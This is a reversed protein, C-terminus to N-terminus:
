PAPRLTKGKGKRNYAGVVGNGYDDAYLQVVGEGTKNRGEIFFGNDTNSGLYIRREGAKSGGARVEIEGHGESSSGMSVVNGVELRGNKGGFVYNGAGHAHILVRNKRDKLVMEGSSDGDAVVYFVSQGARNHVSFIGGRSLSTAQVVANGRWDLVRLDRTKIVDHVVDDDSTAGVVAIACMGVVLLVLANRYRSARRELETIRQELREMPTPAYLRVRPLLSPSLFGM